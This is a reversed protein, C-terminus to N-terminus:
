FFKKYTSATTAYVTGFPKEGPINKLSKDYNKGMCRCCEVELETTCKFMRHKAKTVVVSCKKNCLIYPFLTQLTDDKRKELTTYPNVLEPM